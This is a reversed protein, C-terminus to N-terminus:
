RRQVLPWGNYLQYLCSFAGSLSSLLGVGRLILYYLSSKVWGIANFLCSNDARIVKREIFHAVADISGSVSMKSGSTAASAASLSDGQQVLRCSPDGEASNRVYECMECNRSTCTNRFTCVPCPWDTPSPSSFTGHAVVSICRPLESYPASRTDNACGGADAVGINPTLPTESKRVM